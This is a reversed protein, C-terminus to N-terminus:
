WRRPNRRAEPRVAYRKVLRALVPHDDVLYYLEWNVKHKKGRDDADEDYDRGAFVPPLDRPLKGKRGPLTGLVVGPWNPLAARPADGGAVLDTFLNPAINEAGLVSALRARASVPVTLPELASRPTPARFPPMLEAVLVGNGWDSVAWTYYGDFWYPTMEGMSKGGVGIDFVNQSRVPIGGSAEDRLNVYNEHWAEKQARVIDSKVAANAKPLGMLIAACDWGVTMGNSMAVMGETVPRHCRDCVGVRPVFGAVTIRTSTPNRQSRPNTRPAEPRVRYQEVLRALVPFDSVRYYKRHAYMAYPPPPKKWFRKVSMWNPLAVPDNPGGFLLPANEVGLVQAARSTRVELRYPDILMAVLTGDPWEEVTWTFYGDFWYPTTPAERGRERLGLVNQSLVPLAGDANEAYRQQLAAVELVEVQEKLDKDSKKRGMLTAACDRGVKMGNSMVVLGDFVVRNCRDCVHEKVDFGVPRLPAADDPNRRTRRAPHPPYRLLTPM